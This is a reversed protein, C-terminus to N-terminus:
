LKVLFRISQMITKLSKDHSAFNKVLMILGKGCTWDVDTWFEIINGISSSLLSKKFKYNISLGVYPAGGPSPHFEAFQNELEESFGACAASGFIAAKSSFACANKRVFILFSEQVFNDMLWIAAFSIALTTKMVLDPLSATLRRWSNLGSVNQPVFESAFKCRFHSM